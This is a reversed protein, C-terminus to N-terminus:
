PLVFNSTGDKQCAKEANEVDHHMLLLLQHTTYVFVHLVGTQWFSLKPVHDMLNLYHKLKTGGFKKCRFM